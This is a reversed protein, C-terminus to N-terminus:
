ADPERRARQSQRQHGRGGTTGEPVDPELYRGGPAARRDGDAQEPVQRAPEVAGHPDDDEQIRVAIARTDTTEHALTEATLARDPDEADPEPGDERAVIGQRRAVPAPTRDQEHRTGQPGGALAGRAREISPGRLTKERDADHAGAQEPVAAVNEEIALTERDPGIRDRLVDRPQTQRRGLHERNERRLESALDDDEAGGARSPEIVISVPHRRGPLRGVVDIEVHRQQSAGTAVTPRRREDGVRAAAELLQAGHESV